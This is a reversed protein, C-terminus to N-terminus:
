GVAAATQSALKDMKSSYHDTMESTSHGALAQAAEIGYQERIRTCFTHRMWHPTWREIGAQECVRTIARCYATRTIGFLPTDPDASLYKTLILQAQPGFHLTRSQGHHQCKHDVLAAKWVKGTRDIMGTTLMLLEGSRAGTLLQLDILDRVLPQVRQRVAEINGQDVAHRPANDHAETRGALLPAVAQLRTLVAADVMENEVAHKFIRRLRGVMVNINGRAWGLGVMRARVAKLALPGFDKAPIRGYLERLLKIASRYCHVESTPKGNKVYHQEAHRWFSICLEDVSPGPDVEPKDTPSGVKAMAMPDVPSQGSAVRAILNGYRVRSEDSGYEGLYYDRGDIYTRAQGTSKHFQYSPLAQKPRAM